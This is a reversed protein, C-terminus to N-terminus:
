LSGTSRTTPVRVIFRAGEDSTKISITGGVHDLVQRCIHLGLGTGEGIPKTTFFPKFIEGVMEQPIGPGNDTVVVEIIHNEPEHNVIINIEAFPRGILADHAKL